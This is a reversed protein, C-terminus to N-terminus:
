YTTLERPSQYELTLTWSSHQVLQHKYYLEAYRNAAYGFATNYQGKTDSTLADIYGMGVNFSGTTYADGVLGGIFISEKGTTVSVLLMM